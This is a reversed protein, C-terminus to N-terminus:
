TRIRRGDHDIWVSTWDRHRSDPLCGDGEDYQKRETKLGLRESETMGRPPKRKNQKRLLLKRKTDLGKPDYNEHLTEYELM